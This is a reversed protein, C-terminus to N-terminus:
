FLRKWIKKISAMDTPTIMFDRDPQNRIVHVLGIEQNKGAIAGAFSVARMSDASGDIAILIRDSRADPAALIVPVFSINQLLKNAVSGIPLGALLGMGRRTMIIASYDHKAETLIDRAVGRIIKQLRIEIASIGGNRLINEARRMYQIRGSEQNTQWSLIQLKEDDNEPKRELDLYSQPLQAYVNFLVVVTMFSFNKVSAVYHVADLARESGDLLVLLKNQRNM